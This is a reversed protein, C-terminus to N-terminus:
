STNNFLKQIEKDNHFYNEFMKTIIDWTFNVPEKLRIKLYLEFLNFAMFVMQIIYNIANLEGIFIHEIHYRQKLTRFGCNEINWRNHMIKIVTEVDHELMNTAIYLTETVIKGDRYIKEHSKIVRVKDDYGDYDFVDDWVEKRSIVRESETITVTSNKKIQTKRNKFIEKGLERNSIKRKEIRKKTKIKNKKKALKSYKIDKKTIVEVLEYQYDSGRNDFLGKADKYISRTEDKMRIVFYKKSENIMNMIKENLYLADLVHVDIVGGILKETEEWIKQLATTEGITKAREKGSKTKIKEVELLQKSTVIINALPGIQMGCLYKIYKRIEDLEEYEREPLGQIDKKTENLEVGDWAMVTLGDIKNKRFVKNEKAKLVISNNIEEIQKYDTDIICDRLGHTKPIVESKSYLNKFYLERQSNIGNLQNISKHGCLMSAFITKAVTRPKTDAKKNERKLSNFKKPIDYVSNTYTILKDLKIKSVM